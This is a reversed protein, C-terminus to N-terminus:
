LSFKCAVKEMSIKHGQKECARSVFSLFLSKTWKKRLWIISRRRGTVGRLHLITVWCAQGGPKEERNRGRLASGKYREM